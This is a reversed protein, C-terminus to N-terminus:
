FKPRAPALELLRQCVANLRRTSETVPDFVDFFLFWSSSRRLAAARETGVLQSKGAIFDIMERESAFEQRLTADDRMLDILLQFALAEEIRYAGTQYQGASARGQDGARLELSFERVPDFGMVRLAKVDVRTTPPYRDQVEAYAANVRRTLTTWADSDICSMTPNAALLAARWRDFGAARRLRTLAGLAVTNGLEHNFDTNPYPYYRASLKFTAGSEDKAFVLHAYRPNAPSAKVFEGFRPALEPAVVGQEDGYAGGWRPYEGWIPRTPNGHCGQCRAVDKEVRPRGPEAFDVTGFHYEGTAPDFEAFELLQYRPDAPVGSAAVLFRADSGFLIQRPAEPTAQHLSRSAHVLVFNEHLPPPLAGLLEDLTTEPHETLYSELKGASLPLTLALAQLFAIGM